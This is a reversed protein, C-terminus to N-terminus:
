LENKKRPCTNSSSQIEHHPSFRAAMDKGADKGKYVATLAAGYNTETWLLNPTIQTNLKALTTHFIGIRGDQTPQLRCLCGEWKARRNYGAYTQERCDRRV